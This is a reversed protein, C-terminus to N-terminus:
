QFADLNYKKSSQDQYSQILVTIFINILFFTTMFIYVIFILALYPREGPTPGM